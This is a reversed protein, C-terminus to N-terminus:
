AFYVILGLGRAAGASLYAKASDFAERVHGLEHPEPVRKWSPPLIETRLKEM